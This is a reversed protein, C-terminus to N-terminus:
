RHCALGLGFCFFFLAYFVFLRLLQLPLFSICEGGGGAGLLVPTTAFTQLLYLSGGNQM